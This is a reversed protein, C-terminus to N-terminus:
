WNILKCKHIRTICKRITHINLWIFVFLYFMKTNTIITYFLIVIGIINYPDGLRIDPVAHM